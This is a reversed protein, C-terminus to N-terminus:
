GVRTTEGKIMRDLPGLMNFIPLLLLPVLIVGYFLVSKRHGNANTKPKNAEIDEDKEGIVDKPVPFNRYAHASVLTISGGVIFSATLENGLLLISLVTNLISGAAVAIGRVVNDLYKMIFGMALGQFGMITIVLVHIIGFGKFSKVPTMIFAILNFIIGFVYLKMNQLHVNDLSPDGLKEKYLKECFVGAIASIFASVVSYIITYLLKGDDEDSNEVLTGSNNAKRGPDGMTVVLGTVVLVLSLWQLVSFKQKLYVSALGASVLLKFNALLTVLHSSLYKFAYMNLNNGLFYLGGPVAFYASAYWFSFTAFRGVKADQGLEKMEKLYFRTSISLKLVETALTLFSPPISSFRWAFESLLASACMFVLALSVLLLKAPGTSFYADM